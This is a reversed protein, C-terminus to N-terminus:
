PCASKRKNEENITIIFKRTKSRKALDIKTNLYNNLNLYEHEIKKSDYLLKAIELLDIKLSGKLESRIDLLLFVKIVNNQNIFYDKEKSNIKNKIKKLTNKYESLNKSKSKITNIDNIIEHISKRRFQSILKITKNKYYKDEMEIQTFIKNLNNRIKKESNQNNFYIKTKIYKNNIIKEFANRDFPELSHGFIFVESFEKNKNIENLWNNIKDRDLNKSVKQQEKGFFSFYDSTSATGLVIKNFNDSSNDNINLTENANGHIYYIETNKSTYSPHREYTNTYNFSIVKDPNLKSITENYYEIRIKNIFGSLYITMADKLNELDNRLKDSKSELEEKKFKVKEDVEKLKKLNMLKISEEVECMDVADTYIKYKKYKYNAIEEFPCIIKYIEEEFDIWKDGILKKQELMEKFHKYWINDKLLKIYKEKIDLDKGFLDIYYKKLNDDIYKGDYNKLTLLANKLNTKSEDLYFLNDSFNIFDVYRTPLGNDLDFGNGIILIKM